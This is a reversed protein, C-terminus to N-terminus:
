VNQNFAFVNRANAYTVSEVEERSVNKLESIKDLVYTLFASSNRRGRYPEPALYPCDTEIVIRDLPIEEVVKHMKKGNKFTVVGGIGIYYGMKVYEKALEASYSFCHIIGKTGIGDASKMIEMTDEAADRSHVIVPLKLEKSLRLQRKFWFKQIEHEPEDYHYDLGIEGIAVVKKNSSLRKITEMDEESLSEVDEPHVGLAAYVHEYKNALEMTTVVSKMSAAVNVIPNIGERKLINLVIDRDKEYQEDDYHAHTDVIM